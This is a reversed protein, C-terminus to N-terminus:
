SPPLKKILSTILIIENIEIGRVKMNYIINEFVHIQDSINKGNIMQFDFRKEISYRYLGKEKTRYKFELSNWLEVTTKTHCFFVIFIILYLM